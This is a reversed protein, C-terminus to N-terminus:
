SAKEFKKTKLLENHILKMSKIIFGQIHIIERRSRTLNHDYYAGYKTILYKANNPVKDNNLLGILLSKLILEKNVNTIEMSYLINTLIYIKNFSCSITINVIEKIAKDFNNEYSKTTDVFKETEKWAIEPKMKYVNILESLDDDTCNIIDNEVYEVITDINKKNVVGNSNEILNQFDTINM